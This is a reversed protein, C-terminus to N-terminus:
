STCGIRDCRVCRRPRLYSTLLVLSCSTDTDEHVSAESARVRVRTASSTQVRGFVM